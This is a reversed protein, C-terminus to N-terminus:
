SNPDLYDPTGDDNSDDSLDNYWDPSIEPDTQTEKDSTEIRLLGRQTLADVADKGM